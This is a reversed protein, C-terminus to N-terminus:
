AHMLTAISAHCVVSSLQSPVHTLMADIALLSPLRVLLLELGATYDRREVCTASSSRLVLQPMYKPM